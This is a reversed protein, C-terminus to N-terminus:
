DQSEAANEVEKDFSWLEMERLILSVKHKADAIYGARIDAPLSSALEEPAALLRSRVRHFMQSVAAKASERLVLEGLERAYRLRKHDVEVQLKARELDEESSKELATVAYRFKESALWWEFIAKLDYRGDERVPMGTNKWEKAATRSIAFFRQVATLTDVVFEDFAM